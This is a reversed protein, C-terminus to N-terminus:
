YVRSPSLPAMPVRVPSGRLVERTKLLTRWRDTASRGLYESLGLELVHGSMFLGSFAIDSHALVASV